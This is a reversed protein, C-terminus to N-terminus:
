RGTGRLTELDLLYDLIQVATREAYERDTMVRDPDAITLVPLSSEDAAARIAAELCDDGTGSRNATLLVIDNEQCTRWLEPDPMDSPIGLRQFSQVDCSLFEWIDWWQPSTWIRIFLQLQGEVNHDAMIAPM